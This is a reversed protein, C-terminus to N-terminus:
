VLARWSEDGLSMLPVAAASGPVASPVVPPMVDEAVTPPLLWWQQSQFQELRSREQRRGFGGRSVAVVAEPVVPPKAGAAVKPVVELVEPPARDSDPGSSTHGGDGGWGSPTQGSIGGVSIIPAPIWLLTDAAPEPAGPCNGAASGPVM